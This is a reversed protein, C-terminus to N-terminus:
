KKCVTIMVQAVDEFKSTDKVHSDFYDIYEDILLPGDFAKITRFMSTGTVITVLIKADKLVNRKKLGAVVHEYIGQVDHVNLVKKDRRSYIITVEKEAFKKDKMRSIQKTNYKALNFAM